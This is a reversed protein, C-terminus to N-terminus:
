EGEGGERERGGKRGGRESGGGEREGEGGGEAGGEGAPWSFLPSTNAPPSAQM